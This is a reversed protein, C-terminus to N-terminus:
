DATPYAVPEKSLAIKLRIVDSRLKGIIRTQRVNAEALSQAAGEFQNSKEALEKCTSELLTIHDQLKEVDPHHWPVIPRVPVLLSDWMTTIAAMRKGAVAEQLVAVTDSSITKQELNQTESPKTTTVEDMAGASM